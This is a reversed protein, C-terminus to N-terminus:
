SSRTAKVLLFLTLNMSYVYQFIKILNQYKKNKVIQSDIYVRM